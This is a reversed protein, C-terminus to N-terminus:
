TPSVSPPWISDLGPSQDLAMEAAAWLSEPNTDGAIDCDLYILGGDSALRQLTSHDADSPGLGVVVPRHTLNRCAALLRELLQRDREAIGSLLVIVHSYDSLFAQTLGIQLGHRAMAIIRRVSQGTEVDVYDTGVDMSDPRSGVFRRHVVETSFTKGLWRVLNFSDTGLASCVMVRQFHDSLAQRSAGPNTLPTSLRRWVAAPEVERGSLHEQHLAMVRKAFESSEERTQVIAMSWPEGLRRAGSSQHLVTLSQYSPDSSVRSLVAQVGHIPGEMWQAFWGSQHLLAVSVKDLANRQLSRLRIKDIEEFVSHNVSSLSAYMLRAVDPEEASLAGPQNGKFPSESM